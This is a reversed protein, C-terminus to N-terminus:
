YFNFFAQVKLLVNQLTTDDMQGIIKMKRSIRDVSKLQDTLVAGHVCDNNPIIVKWPWQSTNSTIPCVSVYNSKAHYDYQSLVVAPRRGAQERGSQPSFNIQVYDGRKPIDNM